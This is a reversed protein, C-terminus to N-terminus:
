RRVKLGLSDSSRAWPSGPRPIFKATVIYGGRKWLKPGVLVKPEGGYYATRAQYFGGAKRKIILKITGRPEANGNTEVAVRFKPHTGRKLVAPGSISTETAICGTYPCAATASGSSVGVLGFSMLAAALIATIFKKM